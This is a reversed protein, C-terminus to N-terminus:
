DVYDKPTLHLPKSSDFRKTSFKKGLWDRKSDELDASKVIDIVENTVLGKISKTSEKFKTFKTTKFNGKILLEEFQERSRLGKFGKVKAKEGLSYFKPRVITAIKEEKELKLGGINNSEDFDQITFLSDTDTYYINDFGIKEFYSYMLDRGYATVYLSWIPQVFKPPKDNHKTTKVIGYKEVTYSDFKEKGIELFQNIGMVENNDEYNQCFKGYLSNMLLKDVIEMPNLEKKHKLRAEYLNNVYDKFIKITATYYISKAMSVLKYGKKIANRIEFHSYCGKIYGTPFILKDKYRVPLYPINLDKPCIMVVDCVGEFNQLIYDTCKNVVMISNPDPFDKLMVYPYLSNVDFVKLTKGGFNKYNFTGRKFAETRGGYYALKLFKVDEHSPTKFSEELYKLKFFNLSTSAVTLKLEAGLKHLSEEYFQTFKYSIEADRICYAELYERQNYTTKTDLMTIYPEENPIKGLFYPLPYKPLGIIDGLQKVSMKTAFHLTDAFVIKRKTKRKDKDEYRNLLAILESGRFIMKYKTIGDYDYLAFADFQLNTAIILSKNRKIIKNNEIFNIAKERDYFIKAGSSTYCCVLYFENKVGVTEVDFSLLKHPTYTSRSARRPKLYSM